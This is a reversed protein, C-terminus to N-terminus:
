IVLYFLTLLDCRSGSFCVQLLFVQWIAIIIIIIIIIIKKLCMQFTHFRTWLFMKAMICCSSTNCEETGVVTNLLYPLTHGSM